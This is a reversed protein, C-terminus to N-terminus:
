KRLERRRNERRNAKGDPYGNNCSSLGHSNSSIIVPLNYYTRFEDYEKNGM